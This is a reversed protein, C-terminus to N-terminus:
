NKKSPVFIKGHITLAVRLFDTTQWQRSLPELPPYTPLTVIITVLCKIKHSLLLNFVHLSSTEWCSKTIIYPECPTM